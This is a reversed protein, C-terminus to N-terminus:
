NSWIIGSNLQVEQLQIDFKEKIFTKTNKDLVWLNKNLVVDEFGRKSPYFTKETYIRHFNYHEYLLSRSWDSVIFYDNKVTNNIDKCLIKFQKNSIKNQFVDYASKCISCMSFIAIIILLIFLSKCKLSLINKLRVIFIGGTISLWPFFVQMKAFKNDPMCSILGMFVVTILGLFKMHVHNRSFLIWVGGIVAFVIIFHFDCLIHYLTDRLRWFFPFYNYIGYSATGLVGRPSYWLDNWYIYLFIIYLPLIYFTCKLIRKYSFSILFFLPITVVTIPNMLQAVLYFMASLLDSKQYLWFVLALMIFVTQAQYVDTFISNEFFTKSSLLLAASFYSALVDETLKYCILFTASIGTAGLLTALINMSLDIPFPLMRTFLIGVTIYGWHVTREHLNIDEIQQNYAASDGNIPLCNSVFTLFLLLSLSLLLFSHSIIKYNLSM